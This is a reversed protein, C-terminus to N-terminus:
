EHTTNTLYKILQNKVDYLKMLPNNVELGHLGYKIDYSEIKNIVEERGRTYAASIEKQSLSIFFDVIKEPNLGGNEHGFYGTNWSENWKRILNERITEEATDEMEIAEKPLESRM